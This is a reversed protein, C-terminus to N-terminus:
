GCDERDGASAVGLQRQKRMEIIKRHSNSHVEASFTPSNAPRYEPVLRGSKFRVGCANCLTKPGSPGARWQPTKESGCHTCKRGLTSAPKKRPPTQERHTWLGRLDRRGTRRRKSRAKVPVSLGGCCSMVTTAAGGSVAAASGNSSGSSNTTTATTTLTASSHSHSSTELVSVPSLQKASAQEPWTLRVHQESPLMGVFTEIVPFADKNSIWELDEEEVLEPDDPGILGFSEASRIIKERRSLTKMALPRVEAAEDEENDDEEPVSFNLLDDMIFPEIEMSKM